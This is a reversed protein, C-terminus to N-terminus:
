DEEKIEYLTKAEQINANASIKLVKVLLNRRNPIDFKIYDDVKIETSPKAVKDNVKIYGIQLMQKAIERRKILRTVKLFKDIRM